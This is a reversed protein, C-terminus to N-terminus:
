GLLSGTGTASSVYDRNQEGAIISATMGRRAQQKRVQEDAAETAELPSTTPPPPVPTPPVPKPMAAAMEEASIPKPMEIKPMPPMAPMEVPQQKPIKVPKPAKPKGGFFAMSQYLLDNLLPDDLRM